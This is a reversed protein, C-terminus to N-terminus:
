IRVSDSSFECKLETRIQLEIKTCSSIRIQNALNAFLKFISIIETSIKNKM